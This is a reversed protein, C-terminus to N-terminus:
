RQADRPETESEPAMATASDCELSGRWWNGLSPKRLKKSLLYAIWALSEEGAVKLANDPSPKAVTIHINANQFAKVGTFPPAIFLFGEEPKM